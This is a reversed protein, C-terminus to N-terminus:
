NDLHTNYTNPKWHLQEYPNKPIHFGFRTNNKYDSTAIGLLISMNFNYYTMFSCSKRHELLNRISVSDFTSSISISTLFRVSNFRSPYSDFTYRILFNPIQDLKVCSKFFQHSQFIKKLEIETVYMLLSVTSTSNARGCLSGRFVLGKMLLMVILYHLSFKFRSQLAAGLILWM